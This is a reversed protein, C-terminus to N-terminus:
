PVRAILGAISEGGEYFRLAVPILILLQIADFVAHASVASWISRRWRVLAAFMLSLMAIGLLMFPEEYSLHAVCFMATSLGVGIRPQLLGRFFLEESFGASLSLAIRVGAPLGAIWVVMSPPREPLLSEAGSLILIAALAVLAVLVVLWAVVGAAAGILLERGVNDARLGLQAGFGWASGRPVGVDVYGLVYWLAIAVLFLGHLQFLQWWAVRSFDIEFESGLVTLSQFVGLYLMVTLVVFATIRRAVGSRGGEPQSVSGARAFAPPLLGRVTSLRDVGWAGVAALFMPGFLRLADIGTM